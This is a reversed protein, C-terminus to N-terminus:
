AFMDLENSAPTKVQNVEFHITGSEILAILKEPSVTKGEPLQNTWLSITGISKGNAMVNVDSKTTKFTTQTTNDQLPM